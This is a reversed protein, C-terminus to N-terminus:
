DQKRYRSYEASFHSINTTNSRHDSHQIWISQGSSFNVRSAELHQEIYRDVSQTPIKRRGGDLYSALEGSMIHKYITAQSMDLRSRAEKVSLVSKGSTCSHPRPVPKEM